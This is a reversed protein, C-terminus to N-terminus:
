QSKANYKFNLDKAKERAGISEKIIGKTTASNIEEYLKENNEIANKFQELDVKIMEENNFKSNTM